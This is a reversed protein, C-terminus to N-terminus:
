KSEHQVVVYVIYNSSSIRCAHPNATRWREAIQPDDDGQGYTCTSYMCSSQIGEMEVRLGRIHIACWADMVWRSGSGPQDSFGGARLGSLGYSRSFRHAVKGKERRFVLASQGPALTELFRGAVADWDGNKM